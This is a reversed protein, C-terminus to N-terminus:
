FLHTRECNRQRLVHQQSKKLHYNWDSILLLAQLMCSSICIAEKILLYGLLLSRKLTYMYSRFGKFAKTLKQIILFFVQPLRHWAEPPQECRECFVLIFKKGSFRNKAFHIKEFDIKKAIKKKLDFIRRCSLIFRLFRLFPRWIKGRNESNKGNFDEMHLIEHDKM